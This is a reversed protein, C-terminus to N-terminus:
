NATFNPSNVSAATGTGTVTIHARATATSTGPAYQVTVTCSSGPNVVFGAACTGGTVSFTGTGAIRTITPAATLTFPGANPGGAGNTVTITGTKTTTDAPTTTLAPAPGAFSLTAGTVRFAVSNTTGGPTTVTIGHNGLSTGAAINLTATVTTDNVAVFNSVTINATGTNVATAGTLNAGTLTVNVSTGREGSNPSIGNGNLTPGVVRFTVSNSTFAPTTVTIDYAALAANAGINLTATVAGDNEVVVNSVTINAGSVNVSTVDTLNTGFLTVNVSTGRLGTNPSISTLVPRPANLNENHEIAGVDISSRPSPGPRPNGFFDTRPYDAAALTPVYDIAPSTTALAYNGLPDAGGYNGDPGKISPNTLSLPGFRM